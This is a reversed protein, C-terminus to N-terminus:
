EGAWTRDQVHEIISNKNQPPAWSEGNSIWTTVAHTWSVMPAKGVRWGKSAHYAHFKRAQAIHDPVRNYFELELEEITPAVFIVRASKKKSAPEASGEQLPKHNTTILEQNLNDKPESHTENLLGSPKEQTESLPKIKKPRGGNKGNTQNKGAKVKYEALVEDCKVHVFGKKTKVFFEALIQMAAVEQTAIRLRRFVSQTELPIPQETDYYFNVLRFYIAEEELSLHSTSLGWAPINFKYYHM